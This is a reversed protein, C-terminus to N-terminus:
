PPEDDQLGLIKFTPNPSIAIQKAPQIKPGCNYQCKLSPNAATLREDDDDDDDEEEEGAM